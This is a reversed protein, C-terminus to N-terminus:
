FDYDDKIWFQWWPPRCNETDDFYRDQLGQVLETERGGWLVVDMDEYIQLQYEARCRTQKSNSSDNIERKLKVVHWGLEQVCKRPHIATKGEYKRLTNISKYREEEEALTNELSSLSSYNATIEVGSFVINNARNKLIIRQTIGNYRLANIHPAYCEPELSRILNDTVKQANFNDIFEKNAYSISTITSTDPNFIVEATRGSIDYAKLAAAYEELLKNQGTISRQSMEQAIQARIVDLSRPSGHAYSISFILSLSLISIANKINM